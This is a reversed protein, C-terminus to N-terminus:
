TCLEETSSITAFEQHLSALSVFQVLEAQFRTGDRGTRDFTAVGDHPISIKFGLDAGMRATTSVCHDSTLGILTLHLIKLDSLVEHLNTGIFASHVDKRFIVEHVLPMAFDMFEFGVRDPRLPSDNETSEHQM